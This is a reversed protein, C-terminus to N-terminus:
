ILPVLRVKKADIRKIGIKDLFEQGFANYVLDYPYRNGLSAYITSNLNSYGFNIIDQTLKEFSTYKPFVNRAERNERECSTKDTPVHPRTYFVHVIQQDGPYREINYLLNFEIGNDCLCINFIKAVIEKGLKIFLSTVAEYVSMANGKEILMGWHFHYKPLSFVLIAKSDGKKGELSDLQVITAGYHASLYKIFCSYDHNVLICPDKVYEPRKPKNLPKHKLKKCDKLDIMGTKFQKKYIYNRVTHECCIGQVIHDSEYVHHLGQKNVNIGYYLITNMYELEEANARIESRTM